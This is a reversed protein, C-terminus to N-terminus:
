AEASAADETVEDVAEDAAEEATEATEAPRVVIRSAVFEADDEADSWVVVETGAEIDTPEIETAAMRTRSWGRRTVEQEEFGAVRTDEDIVVTVAEGSGLSFSLSAEGAADVVGQEIRRTTVGDATQVMRETREFDADLGRLGGGMGMGRGGPMMQGQKAGGMQGFGRVDDRDRPGHAAVAATGAIVLAMTTGVVVTVRTSNKNM